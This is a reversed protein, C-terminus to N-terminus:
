KDTEYKYGYQRALNERTSTDSYYNFDREGTEIQQTLRTIEETLRNKESSDVGMRVFQYILTVVLFVIVLVGAVTAGVAIRKVKEEPKEM